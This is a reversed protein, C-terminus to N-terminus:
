SDFALLSDKKTGDLNRLRGAAHERLNRRRRPGIPLVLVGIGEPHYPAEM